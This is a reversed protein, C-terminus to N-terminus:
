KGIAPSAPSRFVHQSNRHKWLFCGGFRQRIKLLEHGVFESLFDYIVGTNLKGDLVVEVVM